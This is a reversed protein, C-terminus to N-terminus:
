RVIRFGPPMESAAGTPPPASGAPQLNGYMKAAQDRADTMIDAIVVLNEGLRPPSQRLSLSRLSSELKAGEKEGLAGLGRMRSVENLFVQSQLTNVLEEFDSVKQNTTFIKSGIPGTASKVVDNSNNIDVKGDKTKGYNLFIQDLTSLTNGFTAQVKQAEAYKEQIKEDRALKAGEIKLQLEQRKLSNDEKAFSAQMAAIRQNGRAIDQTVAYNNIQAANLDLAAISNAKSFEATNADTIAKSEASSAGAVKTKLDVNIVDQAALAKVSKEFRDPDLIALSLNVGSQAGAVDGIELADFAQQYIGAPQGSNKKAEIIKSLKGMAVDPAGNKLATSIDFGTLFENKLSEEGIQKRVDGFAERFQPYKLILDSMSQQTGSQRAQDVDTALQQKAAAAAEAAARQDQAQRFTSGIQLGKALSEALNVQPIM